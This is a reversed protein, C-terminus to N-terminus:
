DSSSHQFGDIIAQMQQLLDEFSSSNQSQSQNSKQTATLKRLCDAYNGRVMMTNPHGVGLTREFMELAQQYLPEADVYRGQSNYLVALNNLYTALQPHNSPLASEAIKLAEQYLSEANTYRKQNRYLEALNNLITAIQPHNSQYLRKLMALAEKYYSKAKNDIGQSRYLEALNNLITAIQIHDGKYLRRRMDLAKELLPKAEKYRKQDEYLMGLNNFITSIQPHDGQYLQELIALAQSYLVEAQTCNGLSHYLEGLNNYSRAVDSNENGLAKAVDVCKELWSKAQLYFGQEKYFWGLGNLLLMLAIDSLFDKMQTAVEEIHKIAPEVQKVQQTTIDQPIPRAIEVMTTVFAQKMATAAEQEELKDRFFERLLRHLRYTKPETRKLLSLKVLQRRGDEIDELDIEEGQWFQYVKEVLVWLMEDPYFLSLLCGLRQTEPQQQL